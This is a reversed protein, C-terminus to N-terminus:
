CRQLDREMARAVAPAAAGMKVVTRALGAADQDFLQLFM